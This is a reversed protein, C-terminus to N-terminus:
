NIDIGEKTINITQNSEITKQCVNLDIINIKLTDFESPEIFGHEKEYHLKYFYYLFSKDFKNNVVFYNYDKNKLSVKIKKDKIVFETLLLDSSSIEYNELQEKTPFQYFIIKPVTNDNHYFYIDSYIIFDYDCFSYNYKSKDYAYYFGLLDKKTTKIIANGDKVFEVCIEHNKYFFTNVIEQRVTEIGDIVQIVFNIYPNEVIANYYKSIKKKSKLFYLECNSYFVIYKYFMIKNLYTYHRPFKSKIFDNIVYLHLITTLITGCYYIKQFVFSFM